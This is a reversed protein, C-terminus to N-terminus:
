WRPAVLAAVGDLRIPEVPPRDQSAVAAGPPLLNESQFGTIDHGDVANGAVVDPVVHVAPDLGETRLAQNGNVLVQDFQAKESMDFLHALAAGCGDEGLQDRGIVALGEAVLDIVVPRLRQHQLQVAVRPLEAEVREAMIGDGVQLLQGLDALFLATAQDSVAATVHM